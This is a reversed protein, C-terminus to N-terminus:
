GKAGPALYTRAYAVALPVTLGITELILVGDAAIEDADPPWSGDAGRRLLQAFIRTSSVVLIERVTPITAYALVNAWTDAKNGPSVIEILLIPDTLAIEGPADPACTVGIDPVRRNYAAKVRIDVAPEVIVDCRGGTGDLHAGIIQALRTQIRNHTTGAPSMMRLEGDVLEYKGGEGDGPWATFEDVTMTTPLKRVYGNM